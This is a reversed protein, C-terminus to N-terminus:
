RPRVQTFPLAVNIMTGTVVAIFVGIMTLASRLKNERLTTLAMLINEGFERRWFQIMRKQPSM